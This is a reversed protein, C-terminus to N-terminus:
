RSHPKQPTSHNHRNEDIQQRLKDPDVNELLEHTVEIATHIREDKSRTFVAQCVFYVPIALLAVPWNGLRYLGSILPIFGLLWMPLYLFYPKLLIVELILSVAIVTIGMVLHVQASDYAYGYQHALIMAIATILTTIQAGRNFLDM